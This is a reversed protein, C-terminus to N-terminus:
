MLEVVAETFDKELMNKLKEEAADNRNVRTSRLISYNNIGVSLTESTVFIYRQWHM